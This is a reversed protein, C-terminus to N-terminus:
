RGGKGSLVLLSNYDTADILFLANNAQQSFFVSHFNIARNSRLALDLALAVVKISVNAGLCEILMPEIKAIITPASSFAAQWPMSTLTAPLLASKILRSRGALPLLGFFAFALSLSLVVPGWSFGGGTGDVSEVFLVGFVVALLVGM